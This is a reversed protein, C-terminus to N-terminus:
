YELSISATMNDMCFYQPINPKTSIVEFDICDVVGLKELKFPTWVTVISDKSASFDALNIESFGTVVGSKYGTAKLTLRDGIEFTEKVTRAVLETNNVFCVTPCCTGYDKNVFEVDHEPMYESLPNTYHVMYTNNPLYDSGYVVRWTLNSSDEKTHNLKSLMFGGLHSSKDDSLSHVFALDYWGLGKGYNTDFYLSDAGFDTAGYEFTAVLTYTQTSVSHPFCSSLGALLVMFLFIRKMGIFRIM